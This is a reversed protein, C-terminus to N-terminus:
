GVMGRDLASSALYLSLQWSSHNLLLVFVRIAEFAKGLLRRGSQGREVPAWFRWELVDMQNQFPPTCVTTRLGRGVWRLRKDPEPAPQRPFVPSDTGLPLFVGPLVQPLTTVLGVDCHCCLDLFSVPTCQGETTHSQPLRLSSLPTESRMHFPPSHPSPTGLCVKVIKWNQGPNQHSWFIIVTKCNM